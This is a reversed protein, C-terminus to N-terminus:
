AEAHSVLASAVDRIRRQALKPLPL